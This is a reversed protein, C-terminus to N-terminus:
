GKEGETASVEQQSVKAKIAKLIRNDSKRWGRLLAIEEDIKKVIEEYKNADVPLVSIVYQLEEYVVECDRIALDQYARRTDFQAITTPYTDNARRINHLITRMIGIFFDRYNNLYWQPYEETVANKINYKEALEELISIDKEEFKSVKRLFETNRIKSKVGFDRLIYSEIRKRLWIANRYFEMESLGRKNQPVNSM